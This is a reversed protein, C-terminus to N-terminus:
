EGFDARTADLVQVSLEGRLGTRIVPKRWGERTHAGPVAVDRQEGKPAMIILTEPHGSPLAVLWRAQPVATANGKKLEGLKLRLMFARGDQLRLGLIPEIVEGRRVYSRVDLACPEKCQTLDLAEYPGESAQWTLQPMWRDFVIAVMSPQRKAQDKLKPWSDGTAVAQWDEPLYDVGVVEPAQRAPQSATGDVSEEFRWRKGDADVMEYFRRKDKPQFSRTELAENDVYREGDFVRQADTETAKTADRALAPETSAVVVTAKEPEPRAAAASQSPAAVTAPAGTEEVLHVRGREDVWVRESSPAPTGGSQCGALVIFGVVGLIRKM